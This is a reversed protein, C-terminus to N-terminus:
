AARRRLRAVRELAAALARMPLGMIGTADGDFTIPWGAALRESLNYAGAKGRWGDGAVYERLADDAVAGIRVSAREALMHRRGTDTEIIAVGTVVDHGRGILQSLMAAAEDADRPTGVLTGDVVCATDAGIVVAPSEAAVGRAVAWAKLYALSAVWEEASVGGPMLGADDFAPSVAEHEIGAGALLERRRPSRSALVVRPLGGWAATEPCEPKMLWEAIRLTATEM